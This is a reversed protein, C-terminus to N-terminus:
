PEISYYCIGPQPCVFRTGDALECPCAYSIAERLGAFGTKALRSFHEPSCVSSGFSSRRLWTVACTNSSSLM